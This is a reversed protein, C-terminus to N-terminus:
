KKRINAYKEVGRSGFYAFVVTILVNEILNVWVSDVKFSGKVSDGVVLITMVLLLYLLTIPRVNKSLWSDSYMDSEWRKTVEILEAKDMELLEFAISKEHESIEKNGSIFEGIENLAKIGTAKSAIELIPSAFKGSSKAWQEIRTTGHEDKFKGM